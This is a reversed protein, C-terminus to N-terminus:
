NAFVPCRSVIVQAIGPERYGVAAIDGLPGDAPDDMGLAIVEPSLVTPWKRGLKMGLPQMGLACRESFECATYAVVRNDLTVTVDPGPIAIRIRGITQQQRVDRKQRNIATKRTVGLARNTEIGLDSSCVDS